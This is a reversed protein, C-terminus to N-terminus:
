SIHRSKFKKLIKYWKNKFNFVKYYFHVRNSLPLGLFLYTHYIEICYFKMLLQDIENNINLDKLQKKLDKLSLSSNEKVTELNLYNKGRVLGLHFGHWPRQNLLLLSPDFCFAEKCLNYLIHENRETNEIIKSRYAKNNKFKKIVPFMKDYYPEVEIFHLGTLRQSAKQPNDPLPRVKNSFPLGVKNAQKKHFEFLSEKENLLLIDVDGFYITEYDAFFDYYCLHRYSQKVAGRHNVDQLWEMDFDVEEVLKVNPFLNVYAKYTKPLKGDYFLLIYEQPYNKQISFLYYPIFRYYSGYIFSCFANKM